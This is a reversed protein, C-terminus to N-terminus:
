RCGYKAKTKRRSKHLSSLKKIAFCDSHIDNDDYAVWYVSSYLPEKLRSPKTPKATANMIPTKKQKAEPKAARHCEKSPKSPIVVSTTM